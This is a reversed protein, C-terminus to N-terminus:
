TSSLHSVEYMVRQLQERDVTYKSRVAKCPGNSADLAFVVLRSRDADSEPRDLSSVCLLLLSAIGILTLSFTLLSPFSCIYM